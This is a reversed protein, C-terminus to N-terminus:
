QDEGSIDAVNHLARKQPRERYPAVKGKVTSFIMEPVKRKEKRVSFGCVADPDDGVGQKM